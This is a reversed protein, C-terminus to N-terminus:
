IVKTNYQKSLILHSKTKKKKELLLRCVLNERSELESTHEESRRRGAAAVRQRRHPAATRRRIPQHLIQDHLRDEPGALAANGLKREVEGDEGVQQARVAGRRKSPPRKPEDQEPEVPQELELAQVVEVALEERLPPRAVDADLAQGIERDDPEGVQLGLGQKCRRARPDVRGVEGRASEVAFGAGQSSRQQTALALVRRWTQRM